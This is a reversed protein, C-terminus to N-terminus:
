TVGVSSSARASSLAGAHLEVGLREALAAAIEAMGSGHTEWLTVVPRAAGASDSM